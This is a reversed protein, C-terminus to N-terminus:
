NFSATSCHYKTTWKALVNCEPTFAAPEFGALENNAKQENMVKKFPTTSYHYKTLADMKQFTVPAFGTGANQPIAWDKESDAM